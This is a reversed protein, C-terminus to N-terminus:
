CTITFQVVVQGLTNKKYTTDGVQSSTAKSTATDATPFVYSSSPNLSSGSSYNVGYKKIEMKYLISLM